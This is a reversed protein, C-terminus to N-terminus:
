ARKKERLFGMAQLASRIKEGAGPPANAILYWALWAPAAWITWLYLAPPYRLSFFLAVEVLAGLFALAILLNRSRALFVSPLLAPLVMGHDYIWAYPAVALSVLLL